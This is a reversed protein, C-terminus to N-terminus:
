IKIGKKPVKGGSVFFLKRYEIRTFPNRQTEIIKWVKNNGLTMINNQMERIFDQELVEAINIDGEEDNIEVQLPEDCNPCELDLNETTEKEWGCRLCRYTKM